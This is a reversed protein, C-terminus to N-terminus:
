LFIGLVARLKMPLQIAARIIELERLKKDSAARLQEVTSAHLELLQDTTLSAVINAYENEGHGKVVKDLLQRYDTSKLVEYQENFYRVIGMIDTVAVTGVSYAQEAKSVWGMIETVKDSGGTIFSKAEDLISNWNM